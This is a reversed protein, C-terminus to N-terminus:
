DAPAGKTAACCSWLAMAGGVLATFLAIAFIVARADAGVAFLTVLLGALPQSLNNFCVILGTTKGFDALPILTKRLTRVYVNFMKDFGTLLIFGAAYVVPDAGFGTLFAGLTIAGYSLGGLLALPLRVHATLFLVAITAAAGATQLLAYATEDQGQLGTVMAASTALTVGIVLNVAMALLIPRFLGPITRIRELGILLSTAWSERVPPLAQLSPDHRGSWLTSFLDAVLFIVAAILVVGQWPLLGLLFAAVLPGLVTGLQDALQTYSAVTEFRERAFVRPLIAERAMLGQTTLVGSIASLGILWWVGGMTWEGAMGLLCVLARLAQSWRLLRYPAIRDCLIGTVPFAVYRPFTEAFFALGSWGVSGTIQFVVLPVLFLLIQDGLRTFFLSVFFSAHHRLM